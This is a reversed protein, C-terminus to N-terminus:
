LEQQTELPKLLRELEKFDEKTNLSICLKDPYIKKALTTLTSGPGVEIILDSEAYQEMCDSWRVMTELQKLAAAKVESGETVLSAQTNTVLPYSLGKFDVKESYTRLSSVVSEMCAAHLGLEVEADYIEVEPHEMAHERVLEIAAPHGMVIHEQPLNQIAIHVERDPKSMKQCLMNLSDFPIGSIRIGNLDTTSLLQGYLLAYKSLLYLGDPFTLGGAAYIASFEGQNYGSVRWPTIGHQKLLAYLASSVLFVSTYANDIRSLETDSSAFCLKVFNTDLCQSAEEFYEQIIRSDDYLEKAMGIYQSGYGPFLIGIKM